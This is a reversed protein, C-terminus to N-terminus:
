GGWRWALPCLQMVSTDGCFISTKKVDTCYSESNQIELDIENEDEKEKDTTCSKEDSKLDELTKNGSIRSTEKEKQCIRCIEGFILALMIGGMMLFLFLVRADSAWGSM